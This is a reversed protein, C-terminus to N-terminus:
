SVYGLARLQENVDETVVSRTRSSKIVRRHKETGAVVHWPVFRVSEHSCGYPHGYFSTADLGGILPEGLMEGHDASIVTKGYNGEIVPKIANQVIDFNERYASNIREKISPDDKVARALQTTLIDTNGDSSIYPAHPQMYHALIRKNPYQHVIELVRDTVQEPPILATNPEQSRVWEFHHVQLGIEEALEKYYPNATVIVLDDFESNMFNGRIWETSTSGRSRKKSLNGAITAQDAFVDYRCADLILLIDWDEKHINIGKEDYPPKQRAQYKGWLQTAAVKPYQLAFQISQWGIM